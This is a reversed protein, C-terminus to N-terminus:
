EHLAEEIVGCGLCEEGDYLVAFQGPAAAWLMEAIRLTLPVDGVVTADILPQRHRIRLTYARHNRPPENIWYCQGLRLFRANLRPDQTDQTVVLANDALRRDAVYWPSDAAGRVGGIGLGSRQGLTYYAIGDHRGIEQGGDTVIPGPQAPIWEQLFARIPREGIFCVGTSDKRQHNPLGLRTAMRRVEPKRLDGLPFIVDALQLGPTAALFYTQDKNRDVAQLLRTQGGSRQLRAYHGTAIHDAGLERAHAAFVGFKIERNCFLDPSPTRGRQYEAVFHAFVREQYEASFDAFHLPFGLIDAIARASDQDEAATCYADDDA